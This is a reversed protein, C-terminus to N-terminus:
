VIEQNVTVITEDTIEACSFRFFAPLDDTSYWSALDILYVDDTVTIDSNFAGAVGVYGDRKTKDANYFVINNISAASSLAINKIRIQSQEGVALPIFGSVCADASSENGSTTSIKCGYEYGDGGNEHTGVFGAGNVDSSLPLLNTYMYVDTESQVTLISDVTISKSGVRIFAVDTPFTLFDVRNLASLYANGRKIGYTVFLSYLPIGHNTGNVKIPQKNIDYCVINTASEETIDINEISIVSAQTVPIFGTCEYDTANSTTEGGSSLSLRTGTKYGKEGNAGVFLNGSADTSVPIQNVIEIVIEEAIATIVINGTVNTISINGGSVASATIDEGGMTIVLSSLEYESNATITAFYTGGEIVQFAGNNTTCNTLNNAVSYYVTNDLVLNGIDILSGDTMEYKVIYDGSPLNSSLVVINNEDVYGFVDDGGGRAVGPGVPNGNIFIHMLGDSAIGLFINDKDVKESSHQGFIVYYIYYKRM